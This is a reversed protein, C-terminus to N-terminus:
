VFPVSDPEFVLLNINLRGGVAQLNTTEPEILEGGPTSKVKGERYQNVIPRRRTNLRIGHDPRIWAFNWTYRMVRSDSFSSFKIENVPSEGEITPRELVM